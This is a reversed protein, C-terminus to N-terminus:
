DCTAFSKWTVMWCAGTLGMPRRDRSIDFPGGYGGPHFGLEQQAVGIDDDSPREPFTAEYRNRESPRHGRSTIRITLAEM